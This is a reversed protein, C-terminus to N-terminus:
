PQLMRKTSSSSWNRIGPVPAANDEDILQVLESNGASAEFNPEPKCLLSADEGEQREDSDINTVHVLEVLFEVDLLLVGSGAERLM